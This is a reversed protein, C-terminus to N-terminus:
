LKCKFVDYGSGNHFTAITNRKNYDSIDIKWRETEPNYIIVYSREDEVCHVWAVDIYKSTSM